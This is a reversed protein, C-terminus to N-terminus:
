PLGWCARGSSGADHWSSDSCRPDRCGITTRNYYGKAENHSRVMVDASTYMGNSIFVFAAHTTCM